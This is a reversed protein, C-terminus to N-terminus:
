IFYEVLIFIILRDIQILLKGRFDESLPFKIPTLKALPARDISSLTKYDPVREHYVFENDKKAKDYGSQITNIQQKVSLDRGGRSESMKIFELAKTLRALSEGIKQEALEHEARHYESMAHYLAQKGALIPLWSKQLEKLSDSQVSKMADAYYDSCQAVQFLNFM